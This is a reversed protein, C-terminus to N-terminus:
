PRGAAGARPWRRGSGSAPWPAPRRRRSSRRPAGPLRAQAPKQVSSNAGLPSVRRGSSPASPRRTRRPRAAQLDDRDQEPGDGQAETEVAVDEGALVHQLRHGRQDRAEAPQQRHREVEHFQQHPQDLRHDEHQQGGDERQQDALVLLLGPPRARTFSPSRRSQGHEIASVGIAFALFRCAINVLHGSVQVDTQRRQARGDAHPQDAHPRPRPPVCDRRTWSSGPATSGPWRRRPPM